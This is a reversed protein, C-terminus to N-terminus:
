MNKYSNYPDFFVKGHKNAQKQPIMYNDGYYEKLVLDYSKPIPFVFGEFTCNITDLFWERKLYHVKSVENRFGIADVYESSNYSKIIRDRDIYLQKASKRYKM